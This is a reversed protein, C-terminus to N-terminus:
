LGQDGVVVMGEKCFRWPRDATQLKGSERM